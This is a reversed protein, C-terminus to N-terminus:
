KNTLLKTQNSQQNQQQVKKLILKQEIDTLEPVFAIQLLNPRDIKSIAKMYLSLLHCKNKKVQLENQSVILHNTPHKAQYIKGCFGSDKQRGGFTYTCNICIGPKINTEQISYSTTLAQSIPTDQQHFTGSLFSYTPHVYNLYNICHNFSLDRLTAGTHPDWLRVTNKNYLAGALSFGRPHFALICVRDKKELTHIVKGSKLNWLKVRSSQSCSKNKTALTNTSKTSNRNKPGFNSIAAQHTYECIDFAMICKGTKLIIDYTYNINQLARDMVFKKISPSLTNLAVIFQQKTSDKITQITTLTVRNINESACEIYYDLARAVPYNQNYLMDLRDETVEVMCESFTAETDKIIRCYDSESYSYGTSRQLFTLQPTIKETIISDIKAIIPDDPIQMSFLSHQVFLTILSLALINYLM